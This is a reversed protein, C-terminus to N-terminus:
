SLSKRLHRIEILLSDVRTELTHDVDCRRLHNYYIASERLSMRRHRLDVVLLAIASELNSPFMTTLTTMM